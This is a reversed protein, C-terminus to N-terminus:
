FAMLWRVHTSLFLSLEEEPVTNMRFLYFWEITLRELHWNRRGEKGGERWGEKGRKRGDKKEKEKRKLYLKVTDGLSAMFKRLRGLTLIM